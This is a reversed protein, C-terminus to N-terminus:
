QLTLIKQAPGSGKPAETEAWARLAALKDKAAAEGAAEAKKYWEWALLPDKQITGAPGKDLPDYFSALELMAKANGKSAADEALLFAADAGEPKARFELAMSLSAAPDAAGSLHKRAQALPTAPQAPTEPAPPSEPKTRPEPAPPTEDQKAPPQPAAEAQPAPAKDKTLFYYAGTGALLALLLLALLLPTKSKAPPDPLPEPAALPPEPAPEPAPKPAPPPPPPPVAVGVGQGGALPSYRVEHLALPCAASEKGPARLSFRYSEQVDLQDVVAPGVHLKLGDATQEAALPTQFSEAEQWGAGGLNKQDSARKLSFGLGELSDLPALGGVLFFGHGAPKSLDNQYAANM